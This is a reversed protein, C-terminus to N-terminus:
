SPRQQRALWVKKLAEEAPQFGDQLVVPPLELYRCDDRDHVFAFGRPDRLAAETPAEYPRIGDLWAAREAETYREKYGNGTGTPVEVRCGPCLPADLPFPFGPLEFQTIM